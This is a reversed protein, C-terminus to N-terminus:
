EGRQKIFKSTVKNLAAAIDNIERETLAPYMPLTIIRDCTEETLPLMGRKHGYRKVFYSFLHIPKYYVGTQIGEELLAEIIEDRSTSLRDPRLKISYLHYLHEHGKDYPLEICENGSLLESLLSANKQRAEKRKESLELQVALLGIGMNNLHYNYGIHEVDYYGPAQLGTKSVVIGHARLRRIKQALAADNTAIMGGEGSTINKTAFFSFATLATIGGGIKKGKYSGGFAHAADDLILLRHKNAIAKIADIDAPYGAYHVPIIVKTDKTIRREIDGASINFTVPNIDCFVPKLGCYEAAFATAVFSLSPMIVESGAALDLSLMALHLAATGSSVIVTEACGLYQAFVKEMEAAMKGRSIHGSKLVNEVAKIERDELELRFIPITNQAKM